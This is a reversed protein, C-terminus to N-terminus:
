VYITTLITGKANKKAYNVGLESNIFMDSIGELLDSPDKCVNHSQVSKSSGENEVSDNGSREWRAQLAKSAKFHEDDVQHSYFRNRNKHSPSGSPTVKNDM